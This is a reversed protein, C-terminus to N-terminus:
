IKVEPTKENLIFYKTKGNCFLKILDAMEECVQKVKEETVPFLGDIYIILNKTGEKVKTEDCDRWNWRRCLVKEDDSYIVEGAEATEQENEGLPTFSEDGDAFRLRIDGKVNALDSAGMPVIHKLSLYNYLDVIKSIRPIAKGALVRKMLAEVSSHYKKPKSGFEAYAVNWPSILPHKAVDAPIFDLKIFDEIEELLHYIKEDSGKNSIGRAVVIGINIKPFKKLIGKEVIVKM